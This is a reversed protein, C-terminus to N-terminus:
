LALSDKIQANLKLAKNVTSKMGLAGPTLV